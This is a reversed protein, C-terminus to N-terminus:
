TRGHDFWDDVSDFHPLHKLLRKPTDAHDIGILASLRSFPQPDAAEHYAFVDYPYDFDLQKLTLMDDEGDNRLGCVDARPYLHGSDMLFQWAEEGVLMEGYDAVVLDPVISLQPKGLCTIGYRVVFEGRAIAEGDKLDQRSLLVGDAFRTVVGTVREAIPQREPISQNTM